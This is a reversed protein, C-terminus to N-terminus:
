KRSKVRDAWAAWGAADTAAGASVFAYVIEQFTAGPMTGQFQILAAQTDKAVQDSVGLVPAVRVYYAMIGEGDGPAPLQVSATPQGGAAKEAALLESEPVDPVDAKLGDYIAKLPAGIARLQGLAKIIATRDM